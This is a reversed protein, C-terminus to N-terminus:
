VCQVARPLGMGPSHRQNRGVIRTYRNFPDFDDNASKYMGSIEIAMTKPLNSIYWILFSINILCFIRFVYSKSWETIRSSLRSFFENQVATDLGSQVDHVDTALKGAKAKLNRLVPINAM